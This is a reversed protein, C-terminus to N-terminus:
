GIEVDDRLALVRVIRDAAADIRDAPCLPELDPPSDRDMGSWALFWWPAGGSLHCEVDQRLGPAMMQRRPDCLGPEAAANRARVVGNPLQQASLGRDTLAAVLASGYATIGKDGM